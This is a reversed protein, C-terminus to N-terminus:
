GKLASTESLEILSRIINDTKSEKKCGSDINMDGNSRLVSSEWM